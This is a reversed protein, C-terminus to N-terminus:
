NLSSVLLNYVYKLMEFKRNEYYPEQDPFIDEMRLFAGRSSFDTHAM